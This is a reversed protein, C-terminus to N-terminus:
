STRKTSLYLWEGPLILLVSEQEWWAPVARVHRTPLLPLSAM